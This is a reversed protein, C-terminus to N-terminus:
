IKIGNLEEKIMSYIKMREDKDYRWRKDGKEPAVLKDFSSTLDSDSFNREIFNKLITKYRVMSFKINEIKSLNIEKKIRNIM